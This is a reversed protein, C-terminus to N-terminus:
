KMCSPVLFAILFVFSMVIAGKVRGDGSDSGGGYIAGHPTYGLVEGSRIQYTYSCVGNTMPYEMTFMGNFEENSARAHIGKSADFESTCIEDTPDFTVMGEEGNSEAQVSGVGVQCLCDLAVYKTSPM